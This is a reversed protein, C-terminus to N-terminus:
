SLARVIASFIRDKVEDWHPQGKDALAECYAKNAAHCVHAVIDAALAVTM